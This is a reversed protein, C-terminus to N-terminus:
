SSADAGPEPAYFGLTAEVGRAAVEPDTGAAVSADGWARSSAAFFARGEDGTGWAMPDLPEEGALHRALGLLGQDWGVGVAGPGYGAWRDDPVIAVHELELTTRGDGAPSLRVELESVDAPDAPEGYAWTVRLRNPRECALIEGGANGELQYRGGVRAEASVPLFWRSLRDPTTLADWVEDIPADYTRTIRISRAEGAALSAAGVSRRGAQIEQLVDFM